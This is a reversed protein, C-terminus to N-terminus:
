CGARAVPDPRASSTSCGGRYRRSVEAGVPADIPGGSDRLALGIRLEPSPTMVLGRALGEGPLGAAEIVIEPDSPTVLRSMISPFAGSFRVDAVGGGLRGGHGIRGDCAKM